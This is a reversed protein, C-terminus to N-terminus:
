PQLLVSPFVVALKGNHIFSRGEGGSAGAEPHRVRIFVPTGDAPLNPITERGPTCCSLKGIFIANKETTNKEDSALWVGVTWKEEFAAERELQEVLKKHNAMDVALAAEEERAKVLAAALEKNESNLRCAEELRDRSAVLDKTEPPPFPPVLSYPDPLYVRDFGLCGKCGPMCCVSTGHENAIHAHRSHGCSNCFPSQSNVPFSGIAPAPHAMFAEFAINAARTVCEFCLHTVGGENGDIEIADAIPNILDCANCRMGTWDYRLERDQIAPNMVKAVDEHSATRLDLAKLGVYVEAVHDRPM